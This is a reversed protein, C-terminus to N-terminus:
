QKRETLVGLDPRYKGAELGSNYLHDTPGPSDGMSACESPTPSEKSSATSSSYEAADNV